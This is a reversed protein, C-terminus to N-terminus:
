EKAIIKPYPMAYLGPIDSGLNAYVEMRADYGFNVKCICGELQVKENM